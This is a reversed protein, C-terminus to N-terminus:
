KLYDDYRMMKQKEIFKRTQEEQRLKNYYKEMEPSLRKYIFFENM